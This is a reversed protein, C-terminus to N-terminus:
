PAVRPSKSSNPGSRTRSVGMESAVMPPDATPAAMHPMRGTHISARSPACLPSTSYSKTFRVGSRALSDMNPTSLHEYGYAGMHGITHQCTLLLLINPREAKANETTAEIAARPIAVAGVAAAAARGIFRRRTMKEM